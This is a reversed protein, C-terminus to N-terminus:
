SSHQFQSPLGQLPDLRPIIRANESYTSLTQIERMLHAASSADEPASVAWGMLHLLSYESLRANKQLAYTEVVECIFKRPVLAPAVNSRTCKISHTFCGDDNTGAWCPIRPVTQRSLPCATCFCCAPALLSICGDEKSHFFGHGKTPVCIM